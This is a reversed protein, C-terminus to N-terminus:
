FKFEYADDSNNSCYGAKNMGSNNGTLQVYAMPLNYLAWIEIIIHSTTRSKVMCSKIAFIYVIHSSHQNTSPCERIINSAIIYLLYIMCMHVYANFM